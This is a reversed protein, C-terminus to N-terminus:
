LHSPLSNFEHLKSLPEGPPWHYLIWRCHLFDRPRSSRRSSSIAGWELIRAQSIGHVSSGPSSCNTRNCLTACSKSISGFWIQEIDVVCSASALYFCLFSVESTVNEDCHMETGSEM